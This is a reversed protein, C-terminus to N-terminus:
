KEDKIFASEHVSNGRDCSEDDCSEIKESECNDESCKIIADVMELISFVLPEKIRYFVSVGSKRSSLINANKLKILHRSIVSQDEKMVPTIECTCKESERLLSLIKLRTPQGLLTLLKAENEFLNEPIV